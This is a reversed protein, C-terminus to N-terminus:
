MTMRKLTAKFINSERDETFDIDPWADLARLIGSGYGYYPILQYAFSALVANRANSNGTKVNEITLNNPLHGPSIIEIRDRFIFVRIPASIFYDRHVLANAVLEEIAVQPIEPQGASNVGQKGQVHHLNSIVFNVTQKFIEELNGTINRNDLYENTAITTSNFAAAKVIFTPLAFNSDKGFLLAGSVNLFGNDGLKMNQLLQPLPLSQDSISKGYRKILFKEFYPLDLESVRMNQVIAEDAHILGSSQFLRQLEERSTAKRKDSGSKVWFIGNKDQYPRNAGSSITIVLVVGKETVINETTPNIAPRVNQSAVNSVMQNLRRVSEGDLGTILGKDDVGVFIQGGIGNSFAVLESALKEPNDFDSKFQHSSDEGASLIRALDILEM